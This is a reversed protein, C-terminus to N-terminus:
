AGRDAWEPVGIELVRNGGPSICSAKQCCELFRQSSREPNLWAEMSASWTSALRRVDDVPPIEHLWPNDIALADRLRGGSRQFWRCQEEWHLRHFPIASGAGDRVQLLPILGPSHFDLARFDAELM